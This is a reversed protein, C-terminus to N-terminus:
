SYFPAHSRCPEFGGAIHPPKSAATPTLLRERICRQLLQALDTGALAGPVLGFFSLASYRGGVNPDNLFLERPRHWDALDALHSGPDTIAVFHKGAEEADLAELAAEVAPEYRGLDSEM